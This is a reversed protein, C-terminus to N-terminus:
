EVSGARSPRPSPRYGRPSPTSGPWSGRITTAGIEALVFIANPLSAADLAPPDTELAALARTVKGAQHDLWKQEHHERARWRTEYVTLISADLLGDCLAQLRLAALRRQPERPVIKGGGAREDLFDLIVRSDYYAVGDEPILVPIKGLPNQQRLTDSASTPDAPEIRTETDFGLLSIAIRVKRGFPSAPSWRLIMM